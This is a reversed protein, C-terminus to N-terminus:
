IEDDERESCVWGINYYETPYRKTVQVGHEDEPFILKYANPYFAISKVGVERVDEHTTVYEMKVNLYVVM